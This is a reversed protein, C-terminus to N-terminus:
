LKLKYCYFLLFKGIDALVTKASKVVLVELDNEEEESSDSDSSQWTNHGGAGIM